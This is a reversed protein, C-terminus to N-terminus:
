DIGLVTDQTKNLKEVGDSTVVYTSAPGFIGPQGVVWGPAAAGPHIAMVMGTELILDKRPSFTGEDIELGMLHGHPGTPFQSSSLFGADQITRDIANAIDKANAGPHILQAGKQLAFECVTFLEQALLDLKGFSYHSVKQTWYGCFCATIEALFLDGKKIVNPSHASPWCPRTIDKKASCTLNFTKDTHSQWMTTEMLAAVEHEYMGPKMEAALKEWCLDVIRASERALSIEGESKAGRLCTYDWSIDIFNTKPLREKLQYFHTVNMNDLTVGVSAMTLKNEEFVKAINEISVVKTNTIWHDSLFTQYAIMTYEREPTSLFLVPEGSVPFLAYAVGYGVRFYQGTLYRLYGERHGDGSVFIADLNKDQLFKRVRNYRWEKDAMTLRAKEMM